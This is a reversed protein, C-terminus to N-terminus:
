ECRALSTGVQMCGPPDQTAQWVTPGWAAVPQPDRWRLAGLPPAGYRVGEFAVAESLVNGQVPGLPTVVLGEVAAAAAAGALAVLSRLRLM